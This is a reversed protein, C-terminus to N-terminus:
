LPPTMIEASITLVEKKAPEKDNESKRSTNQVILALLALAAIYYANQFSNQIKQETKLEKLIKHIESEECSLSSLDARIAQNGIKLGNIGKDLEDLRLQVLKDLAGMSSENTQATYFRPTTRSFNQLIPMSPPVVRPFSTTTKLAFM